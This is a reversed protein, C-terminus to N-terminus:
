SNSIVGERKLFDFVVDGRISFNDPLHSIVAFKFDQHLKIAKKTDSTAEMLLALALQACGSGLYGWSFGDPSHNWATQSKYPSLMGGDIYVRWGYLNGIIISEPNM